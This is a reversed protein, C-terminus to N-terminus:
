VGVCSRCRALLGPEAALDRYLVSVVLSAKELVPLAESDTALKPLRSRGGEKVPEDLVLLQPFSEATSSRSRRELRNEPPDMAGPLIARSHIAQVRTLVLVDMARPRAM